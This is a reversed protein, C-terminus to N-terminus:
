RRPELSRLYAALHAIEDDDLVLVPMRPNPEAPGEELRFPHHALMGRELLEALGGRGYRLHLTPFPPADALPSPGGSVGHCVGCHRQAVLRGAEIEPTAAIASAGTLLVAAVAAALLSSM